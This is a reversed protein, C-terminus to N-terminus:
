GPNGSFSSHSNEVAQNAELIRRAVKRPWDAESAWTPGAARVSTSLEEILSLGTNEGWWRHRIHLLLVGYHMFIAQAMVDGQKFLRMLQQRHEEPWLLAPWAVIPAIRSSVTTSAFVNELINIGAHYAAHRENDVSESALLGDARKRLGEMAAQAEHDPRPCTPVPRFFPAFNNHRILPIVSSKVLSIGRVLDIMTIIGATHASPPSKPDANPFAIAMMNLMVSYAFLASSNHENIDGLADNYRQIGSNQYHIAHAIYQPRSHPHQYAFHLSATALLGDMVFSHHMAEEPIVETWIPLDEADQALTHSTKTM